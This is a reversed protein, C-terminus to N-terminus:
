SYKEEMPWNPIPVMHVHGGHQLIWPRPPATGYRIEYAVAHWHSLFLKTTRRLARLLIQADPLRGEKLTAYAETTKGYQKETLQRAAQEAFAGELNRQKELTWRERFIPGYYSHENQYTKLFSQGIKWCLTKLDANWPRKQGRAWRVTPDLGAFRWIASATHAKEIDIHAVLGAAIVPGIGIITQSWVGVKHGNAFAALLGRVRDELREAQQGFWELVSFSEGQKQANLVQNFCMKRLDQLQYYFSVVYRAQQRSLSQGAKRLDADLKEILTQMELIANTAM